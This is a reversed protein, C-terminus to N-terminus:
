IKGRKWDMKCSKPCPNINSTVMECYPPLLTKM